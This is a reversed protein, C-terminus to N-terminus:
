TLTFVKDRSTEGRKLQLQSPAVGLAKALLKRIAVNAQGDAPPETVSIKVTNGSLIIKAQAANPTARVVIDGGDQTLGSLDPIDKKRLKAM